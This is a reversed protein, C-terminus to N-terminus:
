YRFGWDFTWYYPKRSSGVYSFTFVDGHYSTLWNTSASPPVIAIEDGDVNALRLAQDAFNYVSNLWISPIVFAVFRHYFKAKM